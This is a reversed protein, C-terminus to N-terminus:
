IIGFKYEEAFITHISKYERFFFVSFQMMHIFYVYHVQCIRGVLKVNFANIFNINCRQM